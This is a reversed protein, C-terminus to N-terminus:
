STESMLQIVSSEFNFESLNRIREVPSIKDIGKERHWSNKVPMWEEKAAYFSVGFEPHKFM